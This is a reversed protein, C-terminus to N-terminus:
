NRATLLVTSSLFGRLGALKELLCLLFICIWSKLSNVQSTRSLGSLRLIVSCFYTSIESNLPVNERFIYLSHEYYFLTCSGVNYDARFRPRFIGPNIHILTHIMHEKNEVRSRIPFLMDLFLHCGDCHHPLGALRPQLVLLYTGSGRALEINQFQDKDVGATRSAFHGPVLKDREPPREHRGSNKTAEKTWRLLFRGGM